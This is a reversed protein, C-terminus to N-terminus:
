SNLKKEYIEILDKYKEQLHQLEYESYFFAVEKNNYIAKAIIEPQEDTLSYYTPM